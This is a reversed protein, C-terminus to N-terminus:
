ATLAPSRVVIEVAADINTRPTSPPEGRSVLSFRLVNAAGPPMLRDWSTVFPEAGSGSLAVADGPDGAVVSWSRVPVEVDGAYAHLWLAVTRGRLVELTTIPAGVPRLTVIGRGPSVPPPGVIRRMAGPADPRDRLEPPSPLIPESPSASPPEADIAESPGTSPAAPAPEAPPASGAGAGARQRALEADDQFFVVSVSVYGSDTKIFTEYYTGAVPRGDTLSARGNFAAGDFRSADGSGVTELARAYTGPSEHVTATEYTTLPGDHTVIDGAYVDTVSYLGDPVVFTDGGTVDAGAPEGGEAPAAADATQPEPDSAPDAGPDWAEPDWAAAPRALALTVLIALALTRRRSM